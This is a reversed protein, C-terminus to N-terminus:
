TEHVVINPRWSRFQHLKHVGGQVVYYTTRYYSFSGRFKYVVINGHQWIAMNGYQWIAMNGHQWIAMIDNQLTTM